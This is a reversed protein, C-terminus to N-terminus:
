LQPGADSECRSGPGPQEAEGPLLQVYTYMLCRVPTLVLSCDVQSRAPQGAAAGPAAGGVPTAPARAGEGENWLVGEQPDRGSM